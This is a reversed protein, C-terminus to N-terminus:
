KKESYLRVLELGGMPVCFRKDRPPLCAQVIINRFEDKDLHLQM